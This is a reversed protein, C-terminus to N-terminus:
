GSTVLMFVTGTLLDLRVMGGYAGTKVHREFDANYQWNAAAPAYPRLAENLKVETGPPPPAFTYRGNVAALDEKSLVVVAQIMIDTPGLGGAPGAPWGQWHAEAFDGLGPFRKALPDRDTRVAPTSTGASPDTRPGSPPTTCATLLSTAAVAFTLALLPIRRESM